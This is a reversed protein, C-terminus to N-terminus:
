DFDHPKEDDGVNVTGHKSIVNHYKKNKLNFNNKREERRINLLRKTQGVYTKDCSTCELKYIVNNM